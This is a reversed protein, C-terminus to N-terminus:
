VTVPTVHLLLNSCRVFYTESAAQSIQTRLLEAALIAVGVV